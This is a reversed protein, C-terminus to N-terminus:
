HFPFTCTTYRAGNHIICDISSSLMDWTETDIGLNPESLDGIVPQLRQNELWSPDWLGYAECTERLRQIAETSSSARVHAFVTIPKGRNFLDALIHAGLFGTAGTVLFTQPPGQATPISKIHSKAWILEGDLHYDMEPPTSDSKEGAPLNAAADLVSAFERLTPNQSLTNMSLVLDKGKKIDFLVQQSNLSHGGTDSFRTDLDIVDASIGPIRQAWVDGVYKQTDTFESRTIKSATIGAALEAADPYPLARKDIKGNPTM